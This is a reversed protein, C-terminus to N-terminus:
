NLFLYIHYVILPVYHPARIIIELEKKHLFKHFSKTMTILPITDKRMADQNQERLSKQDQGVASQM